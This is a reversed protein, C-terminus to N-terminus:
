YLQISWSTLHTEYHLDAIIYVCNRVTSAEMQKLLIEEQTKPAPKFKTQLFYTLHGLVETVKQSSIKILACDPFEKFHLLTGLIILPKSFEKLM